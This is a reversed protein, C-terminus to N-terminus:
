YKKCVGIEQLELLRASLQNKTVPAASTFNSLIYVSNLYSVSKDQHRIQVDAGKYNFGAILDTGRDLIQSEIKDAKNVNYALIECSKKNKTTVVPILNFEEEDVMLDRLSAPMSGLDGEQGPLLIEIPSKDTIRRIDVDLEDLEKGNFSYKKPAKHGESEILLYRRSKQGGGWQVSITFKNELDQPISHCKLECPRPFPSEQAFASLSGLALLTILLEKM